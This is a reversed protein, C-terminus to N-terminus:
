LPNFMLERLKDYCTRMSNLISKGYSTGIGRMYPLRCVALLEGAVDYLPLRDAEEESLSCAIQFLKLINTYLMTLVDTERDAFTAAHALLRTIIEQLSAIRRRSSTASMISGVRQYYCYHGVDTCVVRCAATIVLPTWLEDEHILGPVFLFDHENIFDRNYLYNCSMPVYSRIQYMRIFFRKGDMIEGPISAHFLREAWLNKRGDPFVTWTHGVAIDAEAAVAARYLREFSDPAAIWDDSDLFAVYRGRAARLGTNRAVSLGGNAQRIYCFRPDKQTQERLVQGSGDTSGDDVLVVEMSALTQKELSQLCADLYPLTNYVPVIVSLTVSQTMPM